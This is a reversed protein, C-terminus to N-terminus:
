GDPYREKQDTQGLLYDISTGYFLALRILVATPIDNEGTEYKSYGTQSMGLMTAIKTQSLDMDERLDRIRRYM